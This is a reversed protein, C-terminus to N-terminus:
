LFRIFRKVCCAPLWLEVLIGMRLCLLRWGVHDKLDWNGCHSVTGERGGFQVRLPAMGSWFLVGMGLKRWLMLNSGWYLVNWTRKLQTMHVRSKELNYNTVSLCFVVFNLMNGLCITFAAVALFGQARCMYSVIYSCSIWMTHFSMHYFCNLSCNSIKTLHLTLYKNYCIWKLM